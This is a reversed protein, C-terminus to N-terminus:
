PSELPERDQHQKHITIAVRRNFTRKGWRVLVLLLMFVGSMTFFTFAALLLVIWLTRREQKIEAVADQIDMTGSRRSRPLDSPLNTTHIGTQIRVQSDIAEFFEDVKGLEALRELALTGEFDNEDM